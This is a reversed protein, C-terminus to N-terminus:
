RKPTKKGPAPNSEERKSLSRFFDSQEIADSLAETLEDFNGGNIIHQEIELGVEEKKGGYCLAFYGRIVSLPKEQIDSLSLGEEELDCLFNFTFPKATYEKDNIKFKKM